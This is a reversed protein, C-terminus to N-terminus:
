ISWRIFSAPSYFSGIQWCSEVEVPAQLWELWGAASCVWSAIWVSRREISGDLLPRYPQANAWQVLVSRHWRRQAYYPHQHSYMTTVQFGSADWCLTPTIRRRPLSINSLTRAAVTYKSMWGTPPLRDVPILLSFSVLALFSSTNKYCLLLRAPEISCRASQNERHQWTQWNGWTNSWLRFLSRTACPTFFSSCLLFLWM